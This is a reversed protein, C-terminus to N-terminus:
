YTLVHEGARCGGVVSVTELLLATAELQSVQLVYTIESSCRLFFLGLALLPYFLTVLPIWAKCLGSCCCVEFALIVESRILM